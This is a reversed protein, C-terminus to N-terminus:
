TDFDDMDMDGMVEEALMEFEPDEAEAWNDYTGKDWIEVRDIQSALVVEKQIGAFGMLRRPLLIRGSGDVSVPTAGQLFRRTFDRNKKVYQNRSKLREIEKEWVPLPYLILCKDLGKGVVFESRQAEPLQKRLASPM